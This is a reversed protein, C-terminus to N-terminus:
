TKSLGRSAEQTTVMKNILPHNPLKFPHFSPIGRSHSDLKQVCISASSVKHVSQRNQGMRVEYHEKAGPCSNGPSTNSVLPMHLTFRCSTHLDKVMHSLYGSDWDETAQQPGEQEALIAM